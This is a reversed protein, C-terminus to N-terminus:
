RSLRVGSLLLSLLWPQRLVSRHLFSRQLTPRPLALWLLGNLTLMRLRGSPLLRIRLLLSAPLLEASLLGSRWRLRPLRDATRRLLRLRLLGLLRLRLRPPGLLCTLELCTRGVGILGAVETLWCLGSLRSLEALLLPRLGPRARLFSRLLVPLPLLLTRLRRVPMRLLTTGL